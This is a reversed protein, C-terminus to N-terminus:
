GCRYNLAKPLSACASRAKAYSRKREKGSASIARPVPLWTCTVRATLYEYYGGAGTPSTYPTEDTLGARTDIVQQIQRQLREALDDPYQLDYFDKGVADSLKLGWLDLLAQNVYLFRGQRDFIYAFDTISSLTTDFIRSQQELQRILEEAKIESAKREERTRVELNASIASIGADDTAKQRADPM